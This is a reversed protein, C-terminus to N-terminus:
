LEAHRAVHLARRRSHTELAGTCARVARRRRWRASAGVAKTAAGRVRRQREDSRGVEVVRLCGGVEGEWGGQRERAGGHKRGGSMGAARREEPNITRVCCVTAARSRACVRRGGEGQRFRRLRCQAAVSTRAHLGFRAAHSMCRRARIGRLGGAPGERAKSKRAAPSEAQTLGNPYAWRDLPGFGGVDAGPSPEGRGRRRRSQHPLHLAAPRLALAVPRDPALGVIRRRVGRGGDPLHGQNLHDPGDDAGYRERSM